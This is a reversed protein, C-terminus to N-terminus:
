ADSVSNWAAMLLFDKPLYFWIYNGPAARSNLDSLREKQGEAGGGGGGGGGTGFYASWYSEVTHILSILIRQQPENAHM